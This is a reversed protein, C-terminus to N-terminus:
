KGKKIHEFLKHILLGSLAGIAWISLFDVTRITASSSNRSYNGIFLLLLTLPGVFSRYQNDM